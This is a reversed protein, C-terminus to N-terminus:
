VTMKNERSARFLAKLMGAFNAASQRDDREFGEASGMSHILCYATDVGELASRLSERAPEDGAVLETTGAIQPRLREPHRALCRLRLGRRELLPLLRGGIYGTAGTLLILSQNRAM